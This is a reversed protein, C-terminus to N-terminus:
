CSSRRFNRSFPSGRTLSQCRTCDSRGCAPLNGLDRVVDQPIHASTLGIEELQGHGRLPKLDGGHGNLLPGQTHLHRLNPLKGLAMWAQTSMKPGILYLSELSRCRGLGEAADPGLAVDVLTLHRLTPATELHGLQAADFKAGSLRLSKLKVHSRFAEFGAGTFQDASLQLKWLGPLRPLQALGSDTISVGRLRVNGLRKITSLSEIGRDTIETGQLAVGEIWPYGALSILFDDRQSKGEADGGSIARARDFLHSRRVWRFKSMWPPGHYRPLARVGTEKALRQIAQTRYVQWLMPLWGGLFITLFVVLLGIWVPRFRRRGAVTVPKESM